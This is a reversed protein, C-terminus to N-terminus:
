TRDSPEPRRLSRRHPGGHQHGVLGELGEREYYGLWQYVTDPDREVLLGRQAVAHASQGEAVKLIAACRERVYPRPDHDRKATLAARQEDSLDIRRRPAM